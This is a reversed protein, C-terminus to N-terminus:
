PMIGLLVGIPARRIVATGEGLIEIPQDGTIKEANDAYFETIDAAFNVEAEAAALPKGM